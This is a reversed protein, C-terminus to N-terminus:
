GYVLSNSVGLDTVTHKIARYNEFIMVSIIRSICYWNKSYYKLKPIEFGQSLSYFLMYCYVVTSLLVTGFFLVQFSITEWVLLLNM